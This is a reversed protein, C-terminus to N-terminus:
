LSSSVLLFSDFFFWHITQFIVNVSVPTVEEDEEMLDRKKEESNKTKEVQHGSFPLLKPLSSSFSPNCPYPAPSPYSPLCPHTQNFFGGPFFVDTPATWTFRRRRSAQYLLSQQLIFLIIGKSVFFIIYYLDKKTFCKHTLFFVGDRHHM